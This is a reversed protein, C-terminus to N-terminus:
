RVRAAVTMQLTLSPRDRAIHHPARECLEGHAPPIHEGRVPKEGRGLFPVVAGAGATLGHDHSGELPHM